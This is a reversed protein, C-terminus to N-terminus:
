FPIHEDDGGNSRDPYRAALRAQSEAARAKRGAFCRDQRATDKCFRRVFFSGDDVHLGVIQEYLTGPQILGDKPCGECGHVVRARLTRKALIRDGEVEEPGDQALIAREGCSLSRM